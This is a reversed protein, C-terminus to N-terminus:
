FRTDITFRFNEVNDVGGLKRVARSFNFRLPGLSTDWFLSVGVSTRPYVGDDIGAANDLGWLAGTDSFVGGYMGYEEPLGIPFSAELRSIVYFNGGLAEGAATRPGIGLSQFGRFSDGGLFFRDIIRSGAGFNRMYGGELEASLVVDERFFTTFMKAKGITKLYQQDGGLGAVEQSLRLVYGSTPDIPSNRRDFTYTLGVSSTYSQGAEAIILPSTSTVNLIDDRSLRYSLGLRGNESIPFEVRPRFGIKTTDFFFTDAQATQYYISFGALLDRDFLAPETFGLSIDRTDVGVSLSASLTQGRGLFNRETLSVLGGFGNDSSFNAGFSLSGTPKEEVNVDIIAQGPASGERSEVEVTTFYDLARIRDTATQVERRNFPDGEVVRFQRRLVRDLTTSNGEIDIREIFVRDGRVLEFEIDLTRTDDNRTVRPRAQVFPLGNGQSQLDLRQLATEVKKPNYVKGPRIDILTAYDDSNVDPELSVITMEGFRYQQGEQVKLTLLFANRERTMESVASIVQFDIYGRAAYFDRLLQKDFEIRDEIYTDNKFLFSLLRAQKTALVRRLRRDSYKRNGVFSIRRVETVKGEFVEFVLDVRNDSRRIIKPTVQASIRGAAAYAEVIAQVDAEAQSASFARRPQSGILALLVEDDLQKNGEINIRSITPNEVVEIVLRGRDPRIEVTEFLGSAVLLQLAENIQGPTLRTRPKIGAIARITDAAIRQNGAVDIRSFSATAQAQATLSQPALGLQGGMFGLSVAFIVCYKQAGHRKLVSFFRGLM